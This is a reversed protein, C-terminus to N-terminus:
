FKGGTWSLMWLDSKPSPGTKYADLFYQYSIGFGKYSLTAGIIESASRHLQDTVFMPAYEACLVVDSDKPLVHFKIIPGIYSDGVDIDIDDTNASEMFYDVGVAVGVQIPGMRELCIDGFVFEDGLKVTLTTASAVTAFLLVALVIMKKM